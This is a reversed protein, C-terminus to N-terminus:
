FVVRHLDFGPIYHQDIKLIREVRTKDTQAIFEDSFFGAMKFM